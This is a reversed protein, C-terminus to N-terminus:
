CAASRPGSPRCAEGRCSWGSIQLGPDDLDSSSASAPDPQMVPVSAAADRHRVQQRHRRGSGSQATRRPGNPCRSRRHSTGIPRIRRGPSLNRTGRGAQRRARTAPRGAFSTGAAAKPIGSYRTLRQKKLFISNASPSRPAPATSWAGPRRPRPGARKTRLCNTGSIFASSPLWRWLVWMPWCARWRPAAIRRRLQDAGPPNPDSFSPHARNPWFSRMLRGPVRTQRQRPPTERM